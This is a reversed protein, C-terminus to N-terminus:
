ATAAFLPALLVLGLWSLAPAPGLPLIALTVTASATNNAANPDNTTSTASATNVVQAGTPAGATDVTLVFAANAGAALAAISCNVTGAAGVAPATCTFAPGSSQILSVFHTGVPLNDSLQVANAVSSGNNTVGFGDVM